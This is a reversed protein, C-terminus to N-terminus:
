CSSAGALTRGMAKETGDQGALAETHPRLREKAISALPDLRTYHLCTDAGLEVM